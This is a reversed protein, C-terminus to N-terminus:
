STRPHSPATRAMGVEPPPQKYWVPFVPVHPLPKKGNSLSKLGSAGSKDLRELHVVPNDM